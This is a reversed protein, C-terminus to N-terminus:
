QSGRGQKEPPLKPVPLALIQRLEEKRIDLKGLYGDAGKELASRKHWATDKSTVVYIRSKPAAQKLPVIAELGNMGPMEIDLLIVDPSNTEHNLTALANEASDFCKTCQFGAIGEIYRSFAASFHRSDDIVWVSLEPKSGSIMNKRRSSVFSGEM